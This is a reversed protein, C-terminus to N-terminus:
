KFKRTITKLINLKKTPAPVPPENFKEQSEPNIGTGKCHRCQRRVSEDQAICEWYEGCGNCDPCYHLKEARKLWLVREEALAQIRLSTEGGLGLEEGGMILAVDPEKWMKLISSEEELDKDLRYIVGKIYSNLRQYPTMHNYATSTFLADNRVLNSM